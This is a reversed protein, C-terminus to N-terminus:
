APESARRKTWAALGVVCFVLGLLADSAWVRHGFAYVDLLRVVGIAAAATAVAAMTLIILGFVAARAALLAPRVAKDHVADVVTEM